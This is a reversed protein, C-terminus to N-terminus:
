NGKESSETETEADVEIRSPPKFVQRGINKIEFTTVRPGQKQYWVTLTIRLGDIYIFLREGTLKVVDEKTQEILPEAFYNKVPMDRPIPVIQHAGKYLVGIGTIKAAFNPDDVLNNFEDQKSKKTIDFNHTKGDRTNIQIM